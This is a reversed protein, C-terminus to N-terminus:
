GGTLGGGSSARRPVTVQWGWGLANAQETTM